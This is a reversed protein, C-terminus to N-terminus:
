LYRKLARAPGDERAKIRIHCDNNIFQDLLYDQFGLMIGSISVYGATGM